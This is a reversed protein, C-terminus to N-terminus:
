SNENNEDEKEDNKEKKNGIFSGTMSSLIDSFPLVKHPAQGRAAAFAAEVYEEETIDLDALKEVHQPSAGVLMLKGCVSVVLLKSDRGITARDIIRLRGGSTSIRRNFMRLGLFMFFILGLVGLLSIVMTFIQM